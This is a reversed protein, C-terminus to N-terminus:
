DFAARTFRAFGPGVRLVSEELRFGGLSLLERTEAETWRFHTEANRAWNLLSERATGDLGRRDALNRAAPVSLNESPNLVCLAGGPVLVRKWELLARLPDDLLFLLNTATVLTFTASPFPLDLADGQTLTSFLFSSLLSFDSDIGFAAYSQRAFIGPLLGPGCGIDLIVSAPGPTCFSAFEALTRGWATKTQVELFNSFDSL